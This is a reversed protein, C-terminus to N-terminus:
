QVQASFSAALWTVASPLDSNEALVVTQCKRSSNSNVKVLPKKANVRDASQLNM